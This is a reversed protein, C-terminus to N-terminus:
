WRAFFRKIKDQLERIIKDLMQHRRVEVRGMAAEEVRLHEGLVEVENNFIM